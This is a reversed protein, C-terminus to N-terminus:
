HTLLFSRTISVMDEDFLRDGSAAMQQLISMTALLVVCWIAYICSEM